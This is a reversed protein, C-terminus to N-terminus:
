LYHQWGIGGTMATKLRSSPRKCAASDVELGVSKVTTDIICRL